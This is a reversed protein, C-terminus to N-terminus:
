VNPTMSRNAQIFALTGNAYTLPETASVRRELETAPAPSALKCSVVRNSPPEASLTASKSFYSGVVLTPTLRVTFPGEPSYLGLLTRLRPELRQDNLGSIPM